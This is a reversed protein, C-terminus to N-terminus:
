RARTAIENKVKAIFDELKMVSTEDTDRNRVSITGEEAEKAGLILMYPARDVQRAERIKYGIKENREDLQTRINADELAQNVTRAYDLTKESVPLVKVQLPALWVPFKGKTEEIMYAMFRDLSGLIARHLVVPTQDKNDSDVYKLDFKAPLCFDLQCTSLTYEAGVAPKVNVDLKPGYFAAEGIEETFDIGLETLVERLASEAKDWMADDPHYKVKDEPDRLSLVCRYDTIGFDKYVDAILNVVRAVEDKIQDPTVFLHADNQCFHRGREIGKLTGSSEYRFDHAIEGIRIPLERYSHPRNAYIMMHHPCNMPRLVFSEGDMEMAPFMNDKYHAWHGSTQYLAVTGVCPTMVHQYGLKREKEKIYNELEQWVTYGRPLFMPLGRGVLEDTMFLGMEKGIKRHDRAKAEEQQKVYEELEENSAFAVGNIRTLMKNSADNKWYAGSQQTIKFAKLGKTYTMHPGVCMDIYDGQQYFSIVADEPLDGIHEEKYKAHREQMLKIAEDRPLIFPKIPLNAKVIKKMEKEIELLDEDTLKRDGFDVDYYFGKETAPGYAFDADPYLHQIAQAMIHAATHRLVHQQEEAPCEAVTGDKYIIKM